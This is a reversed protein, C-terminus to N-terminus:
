RWWGRRRRTEGRDGGLSDGSDERVTLAEFADGGDEDVEDELESPELGVALVEEDEDDEDVQETM